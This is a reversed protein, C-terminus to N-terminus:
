MVFQNLPFLNFPSKLILIDDRRSEFQNERKIRIIMDDRRSKFQKLVRSLIFLIKALFM